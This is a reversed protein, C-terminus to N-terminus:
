LVSRQIEGEILAKSTVEAKLFLAIADQLRSKAAPDAELAKVLEAGENALYDIDTRSPSFNKAALPDAMLLNRLRNPTSVDRYPDELKPVARGPDM